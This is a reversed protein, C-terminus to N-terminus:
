INIWFHNQPMYKMFYGYTFCSDLVDKTKKPVFLFSVLIGTTKQRELSMDKIPGHFKRTVWFDSLISQPCNQYFSWNTGLCWRDSFWDVSFHNAKGVVDVSNWLWKFLIWKSSMLFNSYLNRILVHAKLLETLVNLFVM